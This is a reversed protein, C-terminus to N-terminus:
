VRKWLEVLSRKRFAITMTVKGHEVAWMMARHVRMVPYQTAAALEQTHKPKALLPPITQTDLRVNPRSLKVGAPTTPPPKIPKRKRIANYARTVSQRRDVTVISPM